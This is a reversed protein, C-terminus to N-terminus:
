KAGKEAAAKEAAAKEADKKQKDLEEFQRNLEEITPPRDPKKPPEAPVPTAPAPQPVAPATEIIPPPADGGAPLPERNAAVPEAGSGPVAGPKPKPFLAELPIEFAWHGKTIDSIATKALALKLSEIPGSPAAFVLVDTVTQGPSIQVVDHRAVEPTASASVPALLRNAHDALVADTPKAGNWSAYKKPVPGGNTIKVEVFV